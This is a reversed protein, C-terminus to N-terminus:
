GPADGRTERRDAVWSELYEFAAREQPGGTKEVWSRLPAWQADIEARPLIAVRTALIAAEIVAHKGRNFGFFDRVRGSRVVDAVISVREAREDVEVVRFAYWRCADALVLADRVDDALVLADRVDDSLARLDGCEAAALMEGVTVLRPLPDPTGVAAQAMLLVDDTVHLVGAGVRRLNAYTTSTRFPRLVIRRMGEDVVPGMPSINASGDLNRTTVVGELIM